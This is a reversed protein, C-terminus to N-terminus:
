KLEEIGGYVCGVVVGRREIYVCLNFSSVIYMAYWIYFIFRLINLGYRSFFFYIIFSKKFLFYKSYIFAVWDGIDYKEGGGEREWGDM